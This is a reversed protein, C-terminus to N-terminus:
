SPHFIRTTSSLAIKSTGQYNKEIEKFTYRHLIRRKGRRTDVLVVNGIKGEEYEIETSVHSETHRIYPDLSEVLKSYPSNRLIEVNQTFPLVENAKSKGQTLDYAYRTLNIFDRSLECWRRYWDLVYQMGIDGRVKGRKALMAMQDKFLSDQRLTQTALREIDIKGVDKFFKYRRVMNKGKQFAKGLLSNLMDIYEDSLRNQKAIKRMMELFSKSIFLTYAFIEYYNSKLRLIKKDNRAYKGSLLKDFEKKFEFDPTFKGEKIKQIADRLRSGDKDVLFDIDDYYTQIDRIHTLTYDGDANVTTKLSLVYMGFDGEESSVHIKKFGKRLTVNSKIKDKSIKVDYSAVKFHKKYLLDMLNIFDKSKM